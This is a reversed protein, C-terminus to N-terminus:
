VGLNRRVDERALRLACAVAAAVTAGDDPGSDFSPRGGANLSREFEVVPVEDALREATPHLWLFVLPIEALDRGEENLYGELEVLSEITHDVDRRLLSPAFVVASAQLVTLKRNKSDWVPGATGIYVERLLLGGPENRHTREFFLTRDGERAISTLEGRGQSPFHAHLLLLARTKACRKSDISGFFTAQLTM